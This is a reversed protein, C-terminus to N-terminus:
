GIPKFPHAADGILIIKDEFYYQSISASKAIKFPDGNTLM